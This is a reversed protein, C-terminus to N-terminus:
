RNHNVVVTKINTFEKIGFSGLERGYGSKKVGGYPLRPDSRVAQNIFVNGTQLKPILGKAMEIDKTWISAGLGYENQNALKVLEDNDDFITIAIVPGFVEEDFVRMGPLVNTLITPEFFIGDRDARKGGMELRAGKEISQNVQQEVEDLGKETAIPGIETELKTPDGMKVNALRYKLYKLYEEAIDKHVFVRKPSNCAQGANRLRGDVLNISCTQLDADPFVIFPDSGGLELLSKKVESAAQSAVIAGAKASGAFSVAQVIPNRIIQEIKSSGILLTQIVGAPFGAKLAFEEIKLASMPVNSAHKVIVTNGAAITPIIFRFAMWFPFNWPAIGLVVGLPEYIVMSEDSETKVIEPKLFEEIKGEYYQATKACKEIEGYVSKIPQGIESTIIQALEEKNEILTASLALLLTDREHYTSNKWSEFATQAKELKLQIEESTLEPFTGNIIGTAPNQSVLM